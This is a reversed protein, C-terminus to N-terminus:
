LLMRLRQFSIPLRSKNLVCRMELFIAHPYLFGYVMFCIKITNNETKKMQGGRLRSFPCDFYFLRLPHSICAKATIKDYKEALKLRLLFRAASIAM